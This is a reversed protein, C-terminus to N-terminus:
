ALQEEVSILRGQDDPCAPPPSGDIVPSQSSYFSASCGRRSRVMIRDALPLARRTVSGFCRSRLLNNGEGCRRCAAIVRVRHAGPRSASVTPSARAHRHPLATLWPNGPRMTPGVGSHRFGLGERQGAAGLGIQSGQHLLRQMGGAGVSVAHDDSRGNAEARTLDHRHAENQM